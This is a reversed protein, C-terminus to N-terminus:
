ISPRAEPAGPAPSGTGAAAAALEQMFAEVDEVPDKGPAAGNAPEEAAPNAQLYSEVMQLREQDAQDLSSPEGTESYKLALSRGCVLRRRRPCEHAGASPRHAPRHHVAPEALAAPAAALLRPRAPGRAACAQFAREEEELSHQVKKYYRTRRYIRCVICTGICAVFGLAVGALAALVSGDASSAAAPASSLLLTQPPSLSMPPPPSALRAPSPPPFPSPPPNAPHHHSEAGDAKHHAEPKESHHADTDKATTAAVLALLAVARHPRM